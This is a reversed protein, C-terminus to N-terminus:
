ATMKRINKRKKKTKIIKAILRDRRKKKFQRYTIIKKMKIM